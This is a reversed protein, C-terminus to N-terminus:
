RLYAKKNEAQLTESVLQLNLPIWFIGMFLLLYLEETMHSQLVNCLPKKSSSTHICHGATFALLKKKGMRVQLNESFKVASDVTLQM